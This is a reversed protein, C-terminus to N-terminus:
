TGNWLFRDEVYWWKVYLPYTQRVRLAYPPVFFAHSAVAGVFDLMEEGTRQEWWVYVEREKGSTRAFVLSLSGSYLVRNTFGDATWTADTEFFTM